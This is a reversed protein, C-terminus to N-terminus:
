PERVVVNDFHIITPTEEFTTTTVAVDGSAYMTDQASGLFQGNVSLSLGAGQCTATIHNTANGLHIADSTKWDLLTVFEGDGTEPDTTFRFIAFYGDGSIRLFYGDGDVNGGSQIRCGVGYANNDNAPASIQTADVEITVDGFSRGANGWLQLGSEIATIAYVGNEYAYSGEGPSDDVYWGSGPDSFDDELLVGTETPAETPPVDTPPSQTFEVATPLPLTASPPPQTPEAATPLPLAEVTASEPTQGAGLDALQQLTGCNCAWTVLAFLAALGAARWRTPLTIM